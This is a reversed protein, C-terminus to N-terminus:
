GSVIDPLSMSILLMSQALDGQGFGTRLLLARFGYSQQAWVGLM